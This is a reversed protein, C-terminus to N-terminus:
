GIMRGIVALTVIPCNWLQLIEDASPVRVKGDEATADVGFKRALADFSVDFRPKAAGEHHPRSTGHASAASTGSVPQGLM